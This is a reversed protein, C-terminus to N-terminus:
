WRFGCEYAGSDPCLSMESSLVHSRPWRLDRRQNPRHRKRLEAEVFRHPIPGTTDWSEHDQEACGSVYIHVLPCNKFEEMSQHLLEFLGDANGADPAPFHGGFTIRSAPDYVLIGVGARIEEILIDEGHCEESYIKRWPGPEISISMSQENVKRLTSHARFVLWFGLGQPAM